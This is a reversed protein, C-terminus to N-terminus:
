ELDKLNEVLPRLAMPFEEACLVDLGLADTWDYFAYGIGARARFHFLFTCLRREREKKGVDQLAANARFAHPNYRLWYVPPPDSSVNAFEMTLSTMANAMRKADCSIGAGDAGAYGFRHQHEDIELFVYGGDDYALVFDVRCSKRDVSAQACEFDIHHERKFHRPPPLTDSSSWERWGSTLLVSRVREEERKMRQCFVAFHMTKM